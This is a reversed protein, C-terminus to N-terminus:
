SIAAKKPHVIIRAKLKQFIQLFIPFAVTVPEKSKTKIEVRSTLLPTKHTALQYLRALSIISKLNQNFRIKTKNKV